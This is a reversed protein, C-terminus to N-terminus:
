CFMSEPRAVGFVFFIGLTAISPTKVFSFHASVGGAVKQSGTGGSRTASLQSIKFIWQSDHNKVNKSPLKMVFYRWIAERIEGFGPAEPQLPRRRFDMKFFSGWILGRVEGLLSPSGTRRGEAFTCKSFHGGVCMIKKQFISLDEFM